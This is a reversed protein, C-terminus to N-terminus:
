DDADDAAPWIARFLFWLAPVALLAQLAHYTFTVPLGFISPGVRTSLWFPFSAAGLVVMVAMALWYIRNPRTGPTIPPGNTAPGAAAPDDPRM